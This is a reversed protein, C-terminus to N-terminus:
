IPQIICILIILYRHLQQNINVLGKLKYPYKFMYFMNQRKYLRNNIFVYYQM